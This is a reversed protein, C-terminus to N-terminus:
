LRKKEPGEPGTITGVLSSRKVNKKRVGWKSGRKVPESLEKQEYRSM